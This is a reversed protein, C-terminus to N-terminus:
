LGDRPMCNFYVSLRVSTPMHIIIRHRMYCNLSGTKGAVYSLAKLLEPCMDILSLVLLADSKSVNRLALFKVTCVNHRNSLWPQSWFKAGRFM